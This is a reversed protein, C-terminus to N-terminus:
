KCHNYKLFQGVGYEKFTLHNLLKRRDKRMKGSAYVLDHTEIAERFLDRDDLLSPNSEKVLKSSLKETLSGLELMKTITPLAIEQRVGSPRMHRTANLYLSSYKAPLYLFTEKSWYTRYEGVGNWLWRNLMQHVDWDPIWRGDTMKTKRNNYYNLESLYEFLKEVAQMGWPSSWWELTNDVQGYLVPGQKAQDSEWIHYKNLSALRRPNILVNEPVFIYGTFNRYEKTVRTLCDYLFAGFRTNQKLFSAEEFSTQGNLYDPGCYVRNRFVKKYTIEYLPLSEFDSMSGFAAIFLVDKFHETLCHISEKVKTVSNNDRKTVRREEKNNKAAQLKLSNHLRTQLMGVRWPKSTKMQTSQILQNSLQLNWYELFYISLNNPKYENYLPIERFHVHDSTSM